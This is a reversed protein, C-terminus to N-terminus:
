KSKKEPLERLARFGINYSFVRADNNYRYAARSLKSFYYWSGGRIIRSRCDGDLRAAGNSKAGEHTPNWCDAVWEWINGNMEHLGFPNAPFSGVPASKKGSWETGCKRCNVRGEGVEDGWWYQTQTGGRAAYEWEAESPLRYTAGTKKSIWAMYQEVDAFDINIVPRGERGWHHDDPVRTCGKDDICAQWNEFTLEYKGIAFPKPIFVIHAPKERKDRSARDGMVFAGKPVVVMEPCEPCDRFTEGVEFASANGQSFVLFLVSFVIFCIPKLNIM